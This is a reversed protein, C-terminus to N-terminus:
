RAFQTLEVAQALYRGADPKPSGDESRTLWEGSAGLLVSIRGRAARVVEEGFRKTEAVTFTFMKGMGSRAFVTRVCRRSVLWDVFATAGPLDLAGDAHIPTFMPSIVGELFAPPQQQPEKMAIGGAGRM